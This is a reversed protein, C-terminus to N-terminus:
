TLIDEVDVPSSAQTSLFAESVDIEEWQREIASALGDCDDVKLGFECTQRDHVLAGTYPPTISVIWEGDIRNWSIRGEFARLSSPVERPDSIRFPVWDRRHNPLERIRRLAYVFETPFERLVLRKLGWAIGTYLYLTGSHKELRVFSNEHKEFIVSQNM